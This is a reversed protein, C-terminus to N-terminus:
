SSGLEILPLGYRKRNQYIIERHMRLFRYTGLQHCRQHCVRCLQILNELEDGGGAGRTHIHHADTARCGCVACPFQKIYEINEPIEIRKKKPVAPM